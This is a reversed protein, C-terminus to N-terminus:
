PLSLSRQRIPLLFRIWQKKHSCGISGFCVLKGMRVQIKVAVPLNNHTLGRHVQGISAAAFPRPDFEKFKSQWNTGLESVLM